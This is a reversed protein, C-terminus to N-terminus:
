VTKREKKTRVRSLSERDSHLRQTAAACANCLYTSLWQMITISDFWVDREGERKQKCQVVVLRNLKAGPENLIGRASVLSEKVCQIELIIPVENMPM